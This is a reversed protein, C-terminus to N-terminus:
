KTQNILATKLMAVSPPLEMLYQILYFKMVYDANSLHNMNMMQVNLVFFNNGFHGM